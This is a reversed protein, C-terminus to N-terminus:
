PERHQPFNKFLAASYDRIDKNQHSLCLMITDPSLGLTPDSEESHVSDLIRLCGVITQYERAKNILSDLTSCPLQKAISAQGELHITVNFLFMLLLKLVSPSQSLSPIVSIVTSLLSKGTENGIIYERGEDSASINTLTGCLSEVLKMEDSELDIKTDAHSFNVLTQEVTDLFKRLCTTYLTSHTVGHKSLSWLLGCSSAGLKACYKVELSLQEKLGAIAEQAEHHMQKETRLEQQATECKNKWRTLELSMKRQEEKLQLLEKQVVAHYKFAHLVESNIMQPIAEKIKVLEHHVSELSDHIRKEDEM